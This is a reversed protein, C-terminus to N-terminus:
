HGEPMLALDFAPRRAYLATPVLVMLLFAWRRNALFGGAVFVCLLQAEIGGQWSQPQAVHWDFPGPVLLEWAPFLNMLLATDFIIFAICM